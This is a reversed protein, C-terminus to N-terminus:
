LRLSVEGSAFRQMKGDEDELLFRGTEDVGRAIGIIQQQPTVIAVKKGYTVDLERWKALFPALGQKNYIVMTTWLSEILFAVLKNREPVADIIQAIDCWPQTIHKSSQQSMNVNVGVGIVVSYEDGISNSRRSEGSLEILIGALKRNQWLIDNPWKLGCNQVIGYRKLAETVAVAVALSLGSLQELEIKFSWLLSLYINRGYPSIWTRGLRGKGAIQREALCIYRGCKLQALEALYTNTSTLEDYIFLYRLYGDFDNSMYKAIIDKNLLEFGGAIKYGQTDTIITIELQKLQEMLECLVSQTLNLENELDADSHFKGDSLIKLLQKLLNNM